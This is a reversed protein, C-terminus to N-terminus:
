VNDKTAEPIEPKLMHAFIAIEYDNEPITAVLECGARTYFDRLKENGAWCDLLICGAYGRLKDIVNRFFQGGLGRGQTEPALMMWHLFLRPQPFSSIDFESDPYFDNEIYRVFVCGIIKSDSQALLFCRGKRTATAVIDHQLPGIQQLSGSATLAEQVRVSLDIIQDTENENALRIINENDM